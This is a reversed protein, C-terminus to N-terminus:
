RFAFSFASASVNSMYNNNNNRHQCITCPQTFIFNFLNHLDACVTSLSIGVCVSKCVRATCNLCVFAQCFFSLSRLKSVLGISLIINSNIIKKQYNLSCISAGDFVYHLRNEVWWKWLLCGDMVETRICM